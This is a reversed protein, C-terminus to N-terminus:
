NMSRPLYGSACHGPSRDPAPPRPCCGAGSLDHGELEAPDFIHELADKVLAVFDVSPENM